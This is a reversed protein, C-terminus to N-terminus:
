HRRTLDGGGDIQERVEPGRVARSVSNGDSENTYRKNPQLHSEGM